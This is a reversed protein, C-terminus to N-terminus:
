KKRQKETGRKIKYRNIYIDHTEATYTYDFPAIIFLMKYTCAHTHTHTPLIIYM